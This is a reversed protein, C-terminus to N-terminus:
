NGCSGIKHSFALQQQQRFLIHFLFRHSFRSASRRQQSKEFGDYVFFVLVLNSIGV